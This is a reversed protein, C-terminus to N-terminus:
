MRLVLKVNTFVVQVAPPGLKVSRREVQLADSDVQVNRCDVRV